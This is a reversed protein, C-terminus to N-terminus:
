LTVMFRKFYDAVKPDCCYIYCGYKGRSMLVRYINRILIDGNKESVRNKKNNKPICRLRDHSADYEIDPGLIVGVYDFEFGQATYVCGVQNIGMPHSAWSNTTPAYMSKYPEQTPAKKTEWPM